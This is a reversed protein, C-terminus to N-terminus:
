RSSTRPARRASSPRAAGSRASWSPSRAWTRTPPGRSAVARVSRNGVAAARDLLAHLAEKWDVARTAGAADRVLPAEIRDGDNMWEYDHRGYDCM